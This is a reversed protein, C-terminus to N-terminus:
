KLHRRVSLPLNVAQVSNRKISAAPVVAKAVRNTAPYTMEVFNHKASLTKVSSSSNGKTWTLPFESPKNNFTYASGTPGGNSQPFAYIQLRCFDFPDDYGSLKVQGGVMTVKNDSGLTCTAVTYGKSSSIRYETGDILCCGFYYFDCKEDAGVDVGEACKNAPVCTVSMTGDSNYTADLPEIWDDDFQWQYVKFSKDAENEKVVIDFNGNDSAVTWTGLWKNYGASGNGGDGGDGGDGGGNGGGVKTMTNPLETPNESFSLYEGAYDGDLLEGLYLFSVLTFDQGLSSISVTGPTMKATGTTAGTATFIDYSGTIFYTESQYEIQGYMGISATGYDTNVSALETQVSLVFSDSSSDYSAEVPVSDLGEIGSVSYTSGKEKATITWTDTESGRKVQWEGLWADYGTPNDGGGGGGNSKKTFATVSYHGTAEAEENLGIAAAYYDGADFIDFIEYDTEEYLFDAFTLNYGYANYYEVAYEIDAILEPAVVQDIYDAMSLGSATFDSKAFYTISYKGSITADAVTNTIFEADEDQYKQVGDYSVTWNSDEKMFAANRQTVNIIGSDIGLSWAIEATRQRNDATANTTNEALSVKLAYASIELTVWDAECTAVIPDSYEYPFTFTAADASTIIDEPEFGSSHMGLQQVIVTLTQGNAKIYLKAYRSNLNVNAEAAATIVKGETSVTLWTSETTVEFKYDTEVEITAEGGKAPIALTSKVIKIDTQGYATNGGEPIVEQECSAFSLAAIMTFIILLSKKM